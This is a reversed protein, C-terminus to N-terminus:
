SDAAKSCSLMCSCHCKWSSLLGQL